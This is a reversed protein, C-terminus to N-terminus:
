YHLIRILRMAAFDIELQPNRGNRKFSHDYWEAVKMLKALSEETKYGMYLNFMITDGYLENEIERELCKSICMRKRYEFEDLYKEYGQYLSDM